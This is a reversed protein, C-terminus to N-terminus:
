ISLRVSLGCMVRICMVPVRGYLRWIIHSFLAFTLGSFVVILCSM